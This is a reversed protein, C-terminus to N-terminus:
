PLSSDGRIEEDMEEPKPVPLWIEKVEITYPGTYRYWQAHTYFKNNEEKFWTGYTYANTEFFWKSPFPGHENCFKGDCNYETYCQNPCNYSTRHLPM